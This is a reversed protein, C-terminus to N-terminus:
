KTKAGKPPNPLPMWYKAFFGNNSVFGYDTYYTSIEYGYFYNKDDRHDPVFHIKTWILCKTKNKPLCEKVSTWETM